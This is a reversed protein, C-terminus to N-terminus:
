YREERTPLDSILLDKVKHSVTLNVKTCYLKGVFVNANFPLNM